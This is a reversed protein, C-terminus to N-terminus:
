AADKKASSAVHWMEIALRRMAAVVAIKKHKPNRAAIREYVIKERADYRVRNWVMQCLMYRLRPSGQHTIHGKKDDTEGSEDSSPVLGLYAGIQKRNKFRSLDGMETLFVMAGLLGVGKMKILKKVSKAYRKAQSLKAIEKDLTIIETELSDMQRLLSALNQRAGFALPEDCESLAKLWARHTKTWAGGLSTSPRVSNRKLLTQVQCKVVVSKEQTDLRARVLERDDRTQKDPIWVSPLKNGALYHGRLIELIHEADKEDTKGRRHKPSRAMKSPALVHCIIGNEKLEDHLGFGLGAAEYAFIIREVGCEKARKKLDAIMTKRGDVDNTFSRKVPTDQGVAIKLLMTKDHLDCGTLIFKNM